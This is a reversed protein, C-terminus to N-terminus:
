TTTSDVVNSTMQDVITSGNMLYIVVCHEQVFGDGTADTWIHGEDSPTRGSELDQSLGGRFTQIDIDHTVDSVGYNVTWDLDYEDTSGNDEVGQLVVGTLAPAPPDRTVKVYKVPGMVGAGNKGRAKVWVKQGPLRAVSSVYTGTRGSIMESESGAPDGPVSPDNTGTGVNFTFYIGACDLDGDGQIM